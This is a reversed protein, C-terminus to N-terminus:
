RSGTRMEMNLSLSFNNQLMSGPSFLIVEGLCLPLLQLYPEIAWIAQGRRKGGFYYTGGSYIQEPGLSPAVSTLQGDM